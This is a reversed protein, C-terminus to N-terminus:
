NESALSRQYEAFELDSETTHKKLWDNLFDLVEYTITVEKNNFKEQLELVQKTLDTHEKKHDEIKPYHHEAFLKEETDFHYSTYNILEDLITGLAHQEDGRVVSDYLLNVLEFLHEHQQDVIPLDVKYKESWTMFGM